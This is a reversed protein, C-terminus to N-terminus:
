EFNREVLGKQALEKLEVVAPKDRSFRPLKLDTDFQYSVNAVLRELNLLSQPFREEFIQEMEEQSFLYQDKSVPPVEKLPLNDRIAHLIQLTETDDNDYYRVTHLPLIDRKFDLSSYRKRVGIYFSFPFDM